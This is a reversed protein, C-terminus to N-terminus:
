LFFFILWTLILALHFVLTVILAPDAGAKSTLQSVSPIQQKGCVDDLSEAPFIHGSVTDFTDGWPLRHKSTTQGSALLPHHNRNTHRGDEAVTLWWRRQVYISKINSLTILIHQLYIILCFSHILNKIWDSRMLSNHTACVNQPWKEHMGGPFMDGKGGDATLVRLPFSGTLDPLVGRGATGPSFTKRHQGDTTFQQGRWINKHRWGTRIHQWRSSWLPPKAIKRQVKWMSQFLM